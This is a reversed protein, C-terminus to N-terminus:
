VVHIHVKLRTNETALEQLQSNVGMQSSVFQAFVATTHLFTLTYVSVYYSVYCNSCHPKSSESGAVLINTSAVIDDFLAVLSAETAM